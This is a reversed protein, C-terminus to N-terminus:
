SRGKPTTIEEKSVEYCINKCKNIKPLKEGGFDHPGKLSFQENKTILYFWCLTYFILIFLIILSVLMEEWLVGGM